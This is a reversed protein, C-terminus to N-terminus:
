IVLGWQSDKLGIFQFNYQKLVKQNGNLNNSAGHIIYIFFGLTVKSIFKFNNYINLNGFGM